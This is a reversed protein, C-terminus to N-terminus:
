WQAVESKIRARSMWVLAIVPLTWGWAIGVVVFIMVRAGAGSTSAMTPDADMMTEQMIVSGLIAGVTVIIMKAIAWVKTLTVSWPRRMMLGVGAVLLAAGAVVSLLGGIGGWISLVFMSIATWIGAMAGLAGM